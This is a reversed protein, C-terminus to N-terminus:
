VLSLLFMRSGMTMSMLLIRSMSLKLGSMMRQMLMIWMLGQTQVRPRKALAPLYISNAM